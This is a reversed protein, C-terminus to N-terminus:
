HRVEANGKEKVTVPVRAPLKSRLIQNEVKLVRVHRALEKQTSTAILLLLSHYLNRMITFGRLHNAEHAVACSIYM